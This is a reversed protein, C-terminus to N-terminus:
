TYEVKMCLDKGTGTQSGSQTAYGGSFLDGTRHGFMCYDSPPSGSYGSMIFEISFASNPTTIASGTFTVEAPSYTGSGNIDNTHATGLTTNNIKCTITANGGTGNKGLWLDVKSISIGQFRSDSIYQGGTTPSNRMIPDGFSRTTSGDTVVLISPATRNFWVYCPTHRNDVGIGTVSAAQVGTINAHDANGYTLTIGLNAAVTIGSNSNHAWSSNPESHIKWFGDKTGDNQQYEFFDYYIPDPEVAAVGVFGVNMLDMPKSLEKNKKILSDRHSM